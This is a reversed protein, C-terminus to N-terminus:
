EGRYAFRTMRILEFQPKLREMLQLFPDDIQAPSDGIGRSLGRHIVSIPQDADFGRVVALEQPDRLPAPPLRGILAALDTDAPLRTRRVLLLATELGGPGKMPWGEDLAAPSQVTEQETEETPRPGFQHNSWPHLSVVQGQSDLWLLYAYAPQNLQVELRVQEGPLVPLTRPDEVSWGRKGKGGPTWIRVTLEGTLAAPVPSPLPAPTQSETHHMRTWPDWALVALALVGALAISVRRAFRHRYGRLSQRLGAATAYRQAPDAALARLVISELSRPISRNWERPPKVEGRKAHDLAEKPTAGPHPPQGTLLAYLVAGLGYVDTRGDIREWQGRAQEPAMYPPSGSIGQLAVSGLHAALGFDVLRPVGDDGLVVNSPKIDRHVLGCAHVAELGEAVQEILAAAAARSPLGTRIVESLNRGPVYEMVLVLEDGVHELGFCQPTYRSRLRSLAKGDQAAEGAGPGDAAAHYRKLVVLRGLDLDRALYASGQGGTGLRGLVIFKGITEPLPERVVGYQPDLPSGTSYSVTPEDFASRVVEEDDPFRRLYDEPAPSEGRRRRYDLEVGLSQRLLEARKAGAAGRLLDELPPSKGCKLADEFQEVTRLIRLLFEGEVRSAISRPFPM